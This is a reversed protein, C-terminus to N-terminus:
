SCGSAAILSLTSSAPHPRRRRTTADPAFFMFKESITKDDVGLVRLRGLIRGSGMTDVDACCVPYGADM